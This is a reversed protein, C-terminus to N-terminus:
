KQYVPYHTVIVADDWFYTLAVIVRLRYVRGSKTKYNRELLFRRDGNDTTHKYEQYQPDLLTEIGRDHITIDKMSRPYHSVGKGTRM